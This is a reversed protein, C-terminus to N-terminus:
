MAVLLDIATLRGSLTGLFRAAAAGDVTQHDITLSLGIHPIHRVEGDVEVPKLNVNGVGLIGVQPPNLIPTFSEIGMNGLNTVTFTGGTLEDPSVDGELCAATLRKAERSIAKLNLTNADRIVPVMLCRPTDVAFGLHVSEYQSIAEKVLVANLEPHDPLTRSVAFLIFDNITVNQLDFAETSSKLRQRFSLLARADASANLTLQATSQISYLMREAIIKRTGQLPVSQTEGPPLETQIPPTMRTQGAAPQVSTPPAARVDREIIRGGPGTGRIGSIDIGLEEALSAARPSIRRKIRDSKSPRKRPVEFAAPQTPVAQVPEDTTASSKDEPPSEASVNPKLSTIDEGPEGIAAINVQVPVEEGEDFFVDLLTGSAPSEVELASKDTEVECLPEGATISDGKQKIWGIIICTEVSQGLKPMVVVTAM